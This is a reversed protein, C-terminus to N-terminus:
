SPSFEIIVPTKSHVPTGPQPFQRSVYGEGRFKASVFRSGVSHVVDRLPLGSLDPMKYTGDPNQQWPIEALAKGQIPSIKETTVQALTQRPIRDLVQLSRKAIERFLPAAVKTAYYEKQPEDVMVAVLLQPRDAPVFGIFSSFYKGGSYGAGPEYKQATGTKGAVSMGEIQATHGTGGPGETVSILMKKMKSVTRPSLIRHVQGGQPAIVERLLIKPRVLYGGNAFTAFAATLQLPTVSIGQGFAVTATVLPTWASDPKKSAVTEGPLLVETRETLGFRKLTEKVTMLGLRRVLNVAGVNSSYRIVEELTLNEYRHSPDHEHLTTKDIVISGNGADIRTKETMLGRELAEAAFFVKLTSGPEYLSSVFANSQYNLSTGSPHNPDFTPRQGMALIEGTFPDMVIAMVAKAGWEQLSKELEEEVLFQLRRDLTIFIGEKDKLSGQLYDKGVYTTKGRGDRLARYKSDELLLEQNLQLELGAIGKGDVDTFGMINAALEGNPYLRCKEPVVYVGSLNARKIKEATSSDVQRRIWVFPRHVNIRNFWKSSSGGLIQALKKSTYKKSKIQKPHAFISGATTNLALEEGNRDFITRRFPSRKKVRQFQRQALRNLDENELVQLQVLRGAVAVFGLLCLLYILGLRVRIWKEMQPKLNPM